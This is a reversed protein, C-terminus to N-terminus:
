LRGLPRWPSSLAIKTVKQRRKSARPLELIIEFDLLIRVLIVDLFDIHCFVIKRRNEDIKADLFSRLNWCKKSLDIKHFDNNKRPLILSKRPKPGESISAFFHHSIIEFLRVFFSALVANELWKPRWFRGWIARLASSFEGQFFHHFFCRFLVSWPARLSWL